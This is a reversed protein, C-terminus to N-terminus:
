CLILGAMHNSYGMNIIFGALAIVLFQGDSIVDCLLDDKGLRAISLICGESYVLSIVIVAVMGIPITGITLYLLLMGSFLNFITLFVRTRPIGLLVPITVIGIAADGNRDRIDPLISAIFTWCFIFSFSILSTSGPSTGNMTVPILSFACGWAFSVMLNKLLPVEKFRHYGSVPPLLPSSYLIGFILPVSTVALAAIGFSVAICLAVAYAAIALVLLPRSYSSTIEYRSAHNLADEEEDTRRNLNYISFIVLSLTAAIPLTFPLSQILCSIYAM